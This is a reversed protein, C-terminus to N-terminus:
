NPIGNQQAYLNSEDVLRKVLSDLNKVASFVDPLIHYDSFQHIIGAKLSCQEMEYPAQKQLNLNLTVLNSKERAKERTMEKEKAM